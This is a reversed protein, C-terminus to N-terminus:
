YTTTLIVEIENSLGYTTDESDSSESSEATGKYNVCDCILITVIQSFVYQVM